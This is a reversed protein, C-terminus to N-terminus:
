IAGETIKKIIGCMEKHRSEFFEPPSCALEKEYQRVANVGESFIREVEELDNCKAVDCFSRSLIVASSGERYHEALAYEGPLLGKGIGATGGFGYPINHSRCTKCIDSVTGDALLEFMFKKHMALHLDNIGVHVRDVGGCSLIEDLCAAGEPTETLLLTKVKGDCAQIFRDTEAKTKFYPLMIIDAGADIVSRIEDETGDHVPNIRVLLEAKKLVRRVRAADKVTHDSKVTNMGPQRLEKGIKELDVFIIDTGADEAIRAIEPSKTIYMLKLMVAGESLKASM